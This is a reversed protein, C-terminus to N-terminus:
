ALAQNSFPSREYAERTFFVLRAPKTTLQIDPGPEFGLKDVLLLSRNNRVDPEAIVRRVSPDAFVERMLFPLVLRARGPRVMFHVGLDGPQVDYHDGVEEATPDYDQFLAVPDGDSLVLWAHHTPQEDIWTYIERVEDVTHDQMMWFTARDETVWSHILPADREPDLPRRTLVPAIM